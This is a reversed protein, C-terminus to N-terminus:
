VNTPRRHPPTDAAFRRCGGEPRAPASCRPRLTATVARDQDMTVVCPGTGTCDGGWATFTSGADPTATLTVM